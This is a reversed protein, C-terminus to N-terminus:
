LTLLRVQLGELNLWQSDEKKLWLVKTNEFIDVTKLFKSLLKTYQDKIMNAGAGHFYILDIDGNLDQYIRKLKETIQNEIIPLNENILNQFYEGRKDNKLAQKIFVQRSNISLNSQQRLQQMAIDLVNGIGADIYQSEANLLRLGRGVVSIDVTGDGIDIGVINNLELISKGNFKTLKCNKAFEQYFAPERYKGTHPNYVLAVNGIVGESAILAEKVHIHLTVPKNFNNITVIHTTKEYRSKLDERHSKTAAEILPLATALEEVEVDIQEPITKGKFREMVGLAIMSLSMVLTIDQHAKDANAGINFSMQGFSTRLAANGIIYRGNMSLASQITIDLNDSLENLVEQDDVSESKPIEHTVKAIISPELMLRQGDIAVKSFGNGIDAAVKLGKISSM